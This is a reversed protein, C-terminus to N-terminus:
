GHAFVAIILLGATMAFGIAFVVLDAVTIKM